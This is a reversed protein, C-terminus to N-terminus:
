EYKKIIEFLETFTDNFSDKRYGDHLRTKDFFTKLLTPDYESGYMFNIINDISPSWATLMNHVDISLLKEKIIDKIESPFNVISYHHPYHVLNLVVEMNYEKICEFFEKLYFVNLIGVTTYFRLIMKVNHKVALEKYKVINAQVETWKANKRQYEFRSGIDDISFNITVEKFPAWL